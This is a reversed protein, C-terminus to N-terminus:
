GCNGLVRAIAKREAPKVWLDYKTKVAVQRSVYACRQSTDPPLWTAADGDGKDENLDIEVALLNLPDNAFEVRKRGAWDSAGTQWADSLAVVHDISLSNNTDKDFEVRAGSFPSRTLVGSLVVCGHTGPQTKVDDLDRGLVENRARCGDGDIDDGWGFLERDYGTRPGRGQVDLQDLAERAAAPDNIIRESDVDHQAPEDGYRTFLFAAVILLAVLVLSTALSSGKRGRARSGMRPFRSRSAM